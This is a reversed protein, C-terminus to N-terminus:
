NKFEKRVNFCPCAKKSTFENHGHVTIDPFSTKLSTILDKLSKKQTSTRTDKFSKTFSLGGIYCVGISDTNHGECHAGVELLNRGAVVSGDLYIVYHYGIEKFGQEKHWKDIDTVTYEIGEVTASCHIIIKNITRM